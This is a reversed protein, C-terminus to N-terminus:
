VQATKVFSVQFFDNCLSIKEDRDEYSILIQLHHSSSSPRNIMLTEFLWRIFQFLALMGQEYYICDSMLIYDIQDLPKWRLFQWQFVSQDLWDFSEVQVQDNSLLSSNKEINLKILPISAQLDTLMVSAGMTACWIGVFGTGSGLEIVNSDIMTRQNCHCYYELYKAMLLASDWVVGSEDSDYKQVITVCPNEEEDIEKTKGDYNVVLEPHDFYIQRSFYNNDFM